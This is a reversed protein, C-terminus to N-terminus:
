SRGWLEKTALRAGEAMSRFKAWAIEPHVRNGLGCDTGGIVNERGVLKALRTFRYAILEPHEIVDTTHALVGPVLYKGDPLKQKEFILFEHEHRVNQDLSIGDANLKLLLDLYQGLMLDGTHAIKMGGYCIHARVQESPIGTLAENLIEILMAFRKRFEELSLSLANYKMVPMDIQLVFGADAIAKYEYELARANARIYEEESKYYENAGPQYNINDPSVAAMFVDPVPQNAVAAKLNKIDREIEAQGTYTVPGTCVLQMQPAAGEARRGGVRGVSYEPFQDRQERGILTQLPKLEYGSLRTRVYNSFGGVKGYEGDNIVDLGADLQQRVAEAVAKPLAAYYEARKSEGANFLADLDNPRPLTGVHSTLIRDTSRKM